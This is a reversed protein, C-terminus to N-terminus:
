RRWGILCNRCTYVWLAHLWGKECGAALLEAVLWRNEADMRGIWDEEDNGEYDENKVVAVVRRRKTSDEHMSKLRQLYFNRSCPSFGEGVIKLGSKCHTRRAERCM